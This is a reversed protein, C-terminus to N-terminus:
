DRKATPAQKLATAAKQAIFGLGMNAADKNLAELHNRGLVQDGSGFEIEAMALRAELEYNLLASRTADALVKHLSEVAQTTKSVDGSAGNIRAATLTVFLEVQRDHCNGLLASAREIASQAEAFKGQALFARALVGSALSEDRAAKEREFEDQARGAIVAAEGTEGRDILLEALDLQVRAAGPKDGIQEFLSAAETDYDHAKRIDGEARFVMGLGVLAIATKARDGIRRCINLSEECTRRAGNHDGMALLVPGLAGTVLAVGDEHGIARYTRLAEEYRQRSNSLDGLALLVDGLNDLENAVELENGTQHSIALSEEFMKKAAVPDGRSQLVIGSLNSVISVGRRDAAAAFLQKAEGAALSAEDFRGLNVLAWAQDARAQALLLSAGLGRAKDAAKHTSVEDRKFDGLFEAASADALDIRPDDGLPAPLRELAEVTQMAETGKAGRVQAHALALGYDLNDPFFAFLAHYIEIAKQWDKSMEHYRGEVLLREARSLGSSLDFAKKAETKALQDYGLTAWATALASHSLSFNPETAIAKQFLDRATLADFVRLKALGESYLRVADLNAPVAVAVEAAEELTIAEVGLKARLREGARAVVDLLRLDSGTESIAVVAEGTRTDEVRLDLRVQSGSHKGLRAYSGVVVLDTSLNKGIRRLSDKGLSDLDPLGLEIKARAVSEAPITRFREGAALETTLWESLATSLWAQDARASLNRFGLVAISRRPTVPGSVGGLVSTPRSHVYFVAALCIVIVSVVILVWRPKWGRHLDKSNFATGSATEAAHNALATSGKTTLSKRVTAADTGDHAAIPAIFRYGQRHLTQIFRPNEASDALALRLKNMAKNLNRDFDVFTDAPWLKERLEKRTVLEGPHELLLVLIHFPQEQLRIRIGHKRLEGARFDVEFVGFRSTSPVIADM